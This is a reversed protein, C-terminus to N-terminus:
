KGWAPNTNYGQSTLKQPQTGNALMSYIQESGGRNSMFALHVGDPAWVPNENRGEDHTLQLYKRTVVDMVFINFKGTAYGRTWAFALTRGNSNWAPNTAEGTGDTIREVNGGDINMTYLQAHGSRGSVFAIETGTKPNVKPEVDINPRASIPRFGLGNVDAIFIRCCNDDPASSAYVIRKGDPTFSPTANVSARQNYFKLDRPPDVSFVFIAPQGKAFSTFAIKGGDPSVATFSSGPTPSNFNTISHQNSGDADMAWIEKTAMKTAQHTYYIHSGAICTGGFQTIIDCAFEHAAKRAGSEDVSATYNKGIVQAESPYDRRMDFVFGRVVLVGNQVAGYGFTLYTAEVPPRSWDTMWLGNGSTPLAPGRKMRSESVVPPQQFDAPQQPNHMPYFSKSVMSFLAASDVDAWLTQNFVAMYNQADGAGRFDAIAMRPRESSKTIRLGIDPEQSALVFLGGGAITAMGALWVLKRM